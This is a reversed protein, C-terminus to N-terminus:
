QKSGSLYSAVQRAEVYAYAHLESIEGLRIGTYIADIRCRADLKKFVVTMVNKVTAKKMGTHKGVQEYTFGCAVCQLVKRQQKSLIWISM